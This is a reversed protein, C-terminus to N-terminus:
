RRRFAQLLGLHIPLLLAIWHGNRQPYVPLWYMFLALVAGVAIVALWRVFWTGPDRGRLVRWAGPLLLWSLPSLLLLNHNAWGYRHQTGFWIFLMLAALVGSLVWLPLAVAALARPRRRGLWLAAMGIAIGTLAWPWARPPADQPEPPLRHPLV